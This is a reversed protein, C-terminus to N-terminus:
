TLEYARAAHREIYEADIFPVDDRHASMLAIRKTLLDKMNRGHILPTEPLDTTAMFEVGSDLLALLRESNDLEQTIMEDLLRRCEMKEAEGTAEMYGCVGVIWAAVNRQTMLWCRLTQLRVLFDAVANRDKLTEKAQESAEQLV